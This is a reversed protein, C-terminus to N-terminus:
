LARRLASRVVELTLGYVLHSTFAYAHISLPYETASKSLGLAPVVGEDAVVWVIAGYGLGAGVTVVPTLEATAGYLGGMGIGYAYHLATGAIHKESHTLEQDSVSVSIANALRMAADDREDESGREQLDRGIGHQPAGQQLSQAGHSREKMGASKGLLSQFQNMVVSAALGGVVGALLGKLVDGKGSRRREAHM